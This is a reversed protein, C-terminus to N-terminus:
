KQSKYLCSKICYPSHSIVNSLLASLFIVYIIAFHVLSGIFLASLSGKTRVSSESSLTMSLNLRLCSLVPPLLLLVRLFTYNIFTYCMRAQAPQTSRMFSCSLIMVSLTSTSGVSKSARDYVPTRINTPVSHNSKVCCHAVVQPPACLLHPESFLIREASNTKPM